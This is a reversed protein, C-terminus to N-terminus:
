RNRTHVYHAVGFIIAVIAVLMFLLPVVIVSIQSQKQVEYTNLTITKTQNTIQNRVHFLVTITDEMLSFRHIIKWPQTTEEWENDTCTENATVNHPGYKLHYCLFYPPSGSWSINLFMGDERKIWLNGTVLLSTLPDQIFFFISYIIKIAISM